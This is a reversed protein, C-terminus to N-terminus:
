PSREYTPWAEGKTNINAGQAVLDKAMELEGRKSPDLLKRGLQKPQREVMIVIIDRTPVLLLLITLMQSFMWVTDGKELLGLANKGIALETDIVLAIDIM